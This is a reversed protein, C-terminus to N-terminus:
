DHRLSRLSMAVVKPSRCWRQFHQPRPMRRWAPRATTLSQCFNLQESRRRRQREAEAEAEAESAEKAVPVVEELELLGILPVSGPLPLMEHRRRVPSVRQFGEAGSIVSDSESDLLSEPPTRPGGDSVLHKRRSRNGQPPVGGQKLAAVFGHGAPPPLPILPTPSSRGLDAFNPPGRM